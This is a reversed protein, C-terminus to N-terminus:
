ALADAGSNVCVLVWYRLEPAAKDTLARVHMPRVAGWLAAADEMRIPEHSIKLLEAAEEHCGIQRLAEPALERVLRDVWRVLMDSRVRVSVSALAARLDDHPAFAFM